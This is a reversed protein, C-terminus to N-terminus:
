NNDNKRKSLRVLWKKEAKLNVLVEVDVDGNELKKKLKSTSISVVDDYLGKEKLLNVFHKTKPYSLTSYSSVSAKNNTGCLSCVNKQKSFDIIKQKIEEKESKIKKEKESLESYKDVLKVGDDEKFKKKNNEIEYEHKFHPCFQRYKCWSCLVSKNTPFNDTNEIQKIMNEIEKKLESLQSETRSSEMKKDFALFYWVLKVDKADPYNKRVWLSYMALQKDRNLQYQTLLRGGTKYDCVYYNGNEDMALRDIRIHYKNGDELDLFDQTELGLTKLHNFPKYHDYYNSIFNKGMEKYNEPTYEKKVVVIRDCWNKDWEDEFYKIIEEKSSLKSHKLDRYLKELADHVLRGMYTEITDPIDVKIKDIYQLKYKYPCQYFTSIKSNSYTAM